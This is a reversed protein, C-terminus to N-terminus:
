VLRMIKERIAAAHAARKARDSSHFALVMELAHSLLPVVRSPHQGAPFRLAVDATQTVLAFVTDPHPRFPVLCRLAREAAHLVWQVTDAAPVAGVQRDLGQLSGVARRYESVAACVRLVQLTRLSASTDVSIFNNNVAQGVRYVEESDLAEPSRLIHEFRIQVPKSQQCEVALWVAPATDGCEIREEIIKAHLVEVAKRRYYDVSAIWKNLTESTAYKDRLLRRLAVQVGSTEEWASGIFTHLTLFTYRDGVASAARATVIDYLVAPNMLPSYVVYMAATRWLLPHHRFQAVFDEVLGNRIFTVHMQDVPAGLPPACIDAVHAAMFLLAFRRLQKSDVPVETTSAAESVVEEATETSTVLPSSVVNSDENPSAPLYANRRVAQGVLEMACAIDAMCRSALIREIVGVYWPGKVPGEWSEWASQYLRHLQCLTMYPKCVACVAAVYDMVDLELLHCTELILAADGSLMLLLDLCLSKLQQAAQTILDSAPTAPTLVRKCDVVLLNATDVWERHSTSDLPTELFLRIVDALTSEEEADFPDVVGARLYDVLSSILAAAAPFLGALFARQISILYPGLIGEFLDEAAAPSLPAQPPVAELSSRLGDIADLSVFRGRYWELYPGSANVGDDGGNELIAVVVSVLEWVVEATPDVVAVDGVSKLRSLLLDSWESLAQPFAPTGRNNNNNSSSSNVTGAAAAPGCSGFGGALSRALDDNCSSFRVRQLQVFADFGSRVAAVLTPPLEAASSSM